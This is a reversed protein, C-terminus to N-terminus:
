ALIVSFFSVWSWVALAVIITIPLNDWSFANAM